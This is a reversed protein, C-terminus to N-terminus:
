RGTASRRGLAIFSFGGSIAILGALVLLLNFGATMSGGFGAGTSPAIPTPQGPGPTREGAVTESPDEDPTTPLTPDDTCAPDVGVVCAPDDTCEPDIGPVCVTPPTCAPDQGVVCQPPSPCDNINLCGEIARNIFTLNATQGPQNPSTNYSIQDAVWGPKATETVTYTCNVAPPLDNWAVSGSAGTTRADPGIGCGNLTFTWGAGGNGEVSNANNFITKSM